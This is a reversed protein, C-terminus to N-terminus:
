LKKPEGIAVVVREFDLFYVPWHLVAGNKKEVICSNDGGGERTIGDDIYFEYADAYEQVANFNPNRDLAINVAEKFTIM